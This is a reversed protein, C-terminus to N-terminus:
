LIFFPAVLILLSPFIGLVALDEECEQAKERVGSDAGNQHRLRAARLRAIRRATGSRHPQRPSLSRAHRESRKLEASSCCALPMALVHQVELNAVPDEQETAELLLAYEAWLEEHADAEDDSADHIDDEGAHWTGRETSSARTDVGRGYM